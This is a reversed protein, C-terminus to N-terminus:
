IQSKQDRTKDKLFDNLRNTLLKEFFLVGSTETEGPQSIRQLLSNKEDRALFYEIIQNELNHNPEFKIEEHKKREAEQEFDRFVLAGTVGAVTKSYREQRSAIIERDVLEVEIRASITQELRTAGNVVDNVNVYLDLMENMLSDQAAM